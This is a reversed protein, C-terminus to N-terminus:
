AIIYRHCIILHGVHQMNGDVAGYINKLFHLISGAGARIPRSDRAPIAAEKRTKIEGTENTKGTTENM